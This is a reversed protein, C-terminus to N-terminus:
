EKSGSKTSAGATFFRQFVVFIVLPVVTTVIAAVSMQDWNSEYQGQIRALLATLPIDSRLFVVPLLLGNWTWLFQLIAVAAIPTISNPLVVHFFRAIPGCGDVMAAEILEKPFDELYNKVLYVAWAFSMGAFPIIVAWINDIMGLERWLRFLPIVVVQNPLVFANIILILLVRRFRFKLFQFAYAAMPALIVPILTSLGAIKVSVWFADLLPYKTWVTTWADLTLSFDDPNWWGLTTQTLPRLSTVVVGVLPIMWLLAISGVIITVWNAVSKNIM